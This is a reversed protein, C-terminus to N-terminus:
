AESDIDGDNAVCIATWAQGHRVCASKTETSPKPITAAVMNEPAGHGVCTANVSRPGTMPSDQDSSHTADHNWGFLPARAGVARTTPLSGAHSRTKSRQYADMKRAKKTTKQTTAQGTKESELMHCKTWYTPSHMGGLKAKLRAMRQLGGM